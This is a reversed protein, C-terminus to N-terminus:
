CKIDYHYGKTYINHLDNTNLQNNYYRHLRGDKQSEMVEIPNPERPGFSLNRNNVEIKLWEPIEHFRCEDYKTLEDAVGKDTLADKRKFLIYMMHDTM